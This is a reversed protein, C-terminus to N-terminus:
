PHDLIRLQRDVAPVLVRPSVDCETSTRLVVGILAAFLSSLMRALEEETFAAEKEEYAGEKLALGMTTLDKGLKYVSRRREEVTTTM